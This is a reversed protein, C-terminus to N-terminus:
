TPIRDATACAALVIIVLLTAKQPSPSEPYGVHIVVTRERICLVGENQRMPKPNREKFEARSGRDCNSFRDDMPNYLHRTQGVAGAPHDGDRLDDPHLTVQDGHLIDEHKAVDPDIINM